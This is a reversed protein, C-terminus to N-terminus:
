GYLVLCKSVNIQTPVLVLIQEYFCKMRLAKSFFSEDSASVSWHTRWRILSESMSAFIKLFFSMQASNQKVGILQQQQVNKSCSGFNSKGRTKNRPQTQFFLLQDSNCRNIKVWARYIGKFSDRSDSVFSSKILSLSLSLSLSLAHTHTPPHTCPHRQTLPQSFPLNTPLYFDFSQEEAFRVLNFWKYLVQSEIYTMFHTLKASWSSFCLLCHSEQNDVSLSQNLFLPLSLTHACILSLTHSHTYALSLSLLSLALSLHRSWFQDGSDPKFLNSQHGATEHYSLGRKNEDLVKRGLCKSRSLLHFSGM